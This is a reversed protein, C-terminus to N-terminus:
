DGDCPRGLRIDVERDLEEELWDTEEFDEGPRTAYFEAPLEANNRLLERLRALNEQQMNVFPDSQHDPPVEQMEEFLYLTYWFTRERRTPAQIKKRGFLKLWDAIVLDVFELPGPDLHTSPAEGDLYRLLQERNRYVFEKVSEM